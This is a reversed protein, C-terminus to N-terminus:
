IKRKLLKKIALPNFNFVLDGTDGVNLPISTGLLIVNDDYKERLKRRPVIIRNRDGERLNKSLGLIHNKVGGPNSFSHFSVFGIKM